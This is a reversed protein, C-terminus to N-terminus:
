ILRDDVPRESGNAVHRYRGAVDRSLWCKDVLLVSFLGDTSYQRARFPPFLEQASFNRSPQLHQRRVRCLRDRLSSLSSLHKVM